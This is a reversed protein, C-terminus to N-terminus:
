PARAGRISLHCYFGLDLYWTHESSPKGPVATFFGGALAASVLCPNSGQTPFVGQLLFHCGGQYGQRSFGMFRPAQHAVTWLTASDSVLVEM